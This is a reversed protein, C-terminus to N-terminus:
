QVGSESSPIRNNFWEWAEDLPQWLLRWRVHDKYWDARDQFRDNTTEYEDWVLGGGFPGMGFPLSGFGAEKAFIIMEHTRGGRAYALAGVVEGGTSGLEINQDSAKKDLPRFHNEFLDYVAHLGFHAEIAATDIDNESCAQKVRSSALALARLALQYTERMDKQGTM